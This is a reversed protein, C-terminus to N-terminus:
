LIEPMAKGKRCAQLTPHLRMEDREPIWDPATPAALFCSV